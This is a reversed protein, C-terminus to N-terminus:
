NPYNKNKTLMIIRTKLPSYNIAHALLPAGQLLNQELLFTGYDKANSNAAVDAQFEHVLRLRKYYIHMLPHFWCAIRLFLLVINDISHFQRSHEKEHTMVFTWQEQNTNQGNVSSSSILFSFPSHGETGRHHHMWKRLNTKRSSLRILLLVERVLFLGM